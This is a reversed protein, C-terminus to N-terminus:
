PDAVVAHEGRRREVIVDEGGDRTVLEYLQHACLLPRQRGVLEEGGLLREERRSHSFHLRHRGDLIALEGLGALHGAFGRRGEPRVDLRLEALTARSATGRTVSTGPSTAPWMPPWGWQVLPVESCSELWIGDSITHGIRSLVSWKKHPYDRDDAVPRLEHLRGGDGAPQPLRVVLQDDM